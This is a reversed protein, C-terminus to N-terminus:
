DLTDPIDIADVDYIPLIVIELRPNERDVHSSTTVMPVHKPRDDIIYWGELADIYAKNAINGADLQARKDKFFADIFIHVPWISIRAKDPDIVSRVLWHVRDREKKRKSWHVGSWYENWSKPKEGPLVLTIM